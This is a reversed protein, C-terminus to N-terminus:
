AGGPTESHTGTGGERERIVPFPIAIPRPACAEIVRATYQDDGCVTGDYQGAYQLLAAEELRERVEPVVLRIDCREFVPQFRELSPIMYPATFLVTYM